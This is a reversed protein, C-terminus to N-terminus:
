IGYKFPRGFVSKNNGKIAKLPSKPKTKGMINRIPSTAAAYLLASLARVDNVVENQTSKKFM